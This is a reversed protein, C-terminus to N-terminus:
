ISWDFDVPFTNVFEFIFIAKLNSWPDPTFISDEKSNQDGFERFHKKKKRVM